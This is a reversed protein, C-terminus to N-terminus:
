IIKLRFFSVDIIKSGSEAIITEGDRIIRDLQSTSIVLGKMGGDRIIVNSGNGLVFVPVKNAHTYTLLDKLEQENKPIFLCEANGGLKTYTYHELPEDFKFLFDPFLDLLKEKM